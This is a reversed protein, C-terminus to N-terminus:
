GSACISGSSLWKTNLLPNSRNHEFAIAAVILVVAGGAVLRDV